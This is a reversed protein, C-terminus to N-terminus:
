FQGGLRLGFMCVFNSYRGGPLTERTNTYAIGANTFLTFVVGRGRFNTYFQGLAAGMFQNRNATITEISNVKYEDMRYCNGLPFSLGIGLDVTGKNKLPHYQIGPAFYAGRFTTFTMGDRFSGGFYLTGGGYREVAVVLSLNGKAVYREYSIGMNDAAYSNMAGASIGATVVNKKPTYNGNHKPRAAVTSTMALLLLFFPALLNMSQNLYTFLANRLFYM